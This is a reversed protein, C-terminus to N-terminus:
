LRDAQRREAYPQDPLTRLRHDAAQAIGAFGILATAVILTKRM